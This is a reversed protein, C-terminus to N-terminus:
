RGDGDFVGVQMQLLLLLLLESLELQVSSRLEDTTAAEACAAEDDLAGIMDVM